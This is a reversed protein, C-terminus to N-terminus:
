ELDTEHQETSSSVWCAMNSAIETLLLIVAYKKILIFCIVLNPLSGFLDYCITVFDLEFELIDWKGLTYM